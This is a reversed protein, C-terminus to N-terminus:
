RVSWKELLWYNWEPPNDADWLIDFYLVERSYYKSYAVDIMGGTDVCKMELDIAHFVITRGLLDKHCAGATGYMSPELKGTAVTTCDDDCNIGGLSPDYFTIVAPYDILDKEPKDNTFPIIPFISMIFLIAVAIYYM